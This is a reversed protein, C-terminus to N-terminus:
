IDSFDLRAWKELDEGVFNNLGVQLYHHYTQQLQEDTFTSNEALLLALEGAENLSSYYEFQALDIGSFLQKRQTESLKNNHLLRLNELDFDFYEPFSDFNQWIIALMKFAKEWTFEPSHNASEKAFNAKFHQELNQM